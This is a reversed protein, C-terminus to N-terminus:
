TLDGAPWNRCGNSPQGSHEDSSVRATTCPDEVTKAANVVVGLEAAIHRLDAAPEHGVRFRGACREPEGNQVGGVDVSERQRAAIDIHSPTQDRKGIRLGFQGAHQGMLDAM